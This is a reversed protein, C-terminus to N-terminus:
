ILVPKLALPKMKLARRAADHFLSIKTLVSQYFFINASKQVMQAADASNM